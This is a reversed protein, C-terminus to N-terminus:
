NPPFEWVNNWNNRRKRERKQQEWRVYIVDKITTGYDKSIRIEKKGNKNEKSKQPNKKYIKQNRSDKM